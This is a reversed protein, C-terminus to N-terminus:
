EILGRCAGRDNRTKDDAVRVYVSEDTLTGTDQRKCLQMQTQTSSEEGDDDGNDDDDGGDDDDDGGGGYTTGSSFDYVRIWTRSM